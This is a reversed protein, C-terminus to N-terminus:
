GSMMMQDERLLLDGQFRDNRGAKPLSYKTGRINHQYNQKLHLRVRGKATVSAAVRQMMDSGCHACFLMSRQQEHEDNPYYVKFCAGCRQVWSKLRRIKM